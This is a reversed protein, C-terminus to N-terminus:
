RRRRPKELLAVAEVHPSWLFQDLPTMGIIRYGGEVLISLDRALTTPNCSVAAVFPVGSRAIQKAQDEAGARPPDFLLGDFAALEKFTLPRRYLDRKETTVPRLGQTSRFGRDLAALAAADGEVAHVESRAALRLAFTGSGAFLDAVRNARKLHALVLGAMAEEASAVAQLFGGPPPTVEAQGFRVVPKRPEVIIEGDISLRAFGERIVLDSVAPRIREPLSGCGEAAVDLGTLTHTVTLKFPQPKISIMAALRRLRDLAAVIEPVAIPNEEIDVITHSLAEFYGLLLGAETRRATFTVRRRTHAACPVIEAVPCEVGQSKLAQVLKDRKWALYAQHELHQMACGGCVGFHRCLATVRLPSAQLVSVLDARDKKERAPARAAIVTEGPLAFPVFVHGTETDAVGDGQSGLRAITLADSM